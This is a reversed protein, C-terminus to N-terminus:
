SHLLFLISFCQPSSFFGLLFYPCSYLVPATHLVSRVESFVIERNETVLLLSTLNKLNMTGHMM